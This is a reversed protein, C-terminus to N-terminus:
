SFCVDALFLSGVRFCAETISLSISVNQRGKMQKKVREVKGQFSSRKENNKEEVLKMREKRDKQGGLRTQIM